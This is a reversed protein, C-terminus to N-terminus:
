CRQFTLIYSFSAKHLEKKRFGVGEVMEVVQVPPYYRREGFVPYINLALNMFHRLGGIFNPDAIILLGSKKTIRAVEYLVELANELHHLVASIVVTSISGDKFPIQEAIGQTLNPREGYTNKRALKLSNMSIDFGILDRYNEASLKRLLRGTACGLDLVPEPLSMNLILKDWKKTFKDFFWCTDYFGAYRDFTSKSIDRSSGLLSV